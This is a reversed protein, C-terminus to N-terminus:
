KPIYILKENYTIKLGYSTIQYPKVNELFTLGLMIELTDNESKNEILLRIPIKEEGFKIITEVAEEIEHLEGNFNTYQHPEDLKYKQLHKCLRPSIYNGNVGTDILINIQSYSKGNFYEGQIKYNRADNEKEDITNYFRSSNGMRNLPFGVVNKSCFSLRPKICDSILLPKDQLDLNLPRADIEEIRPLSPMQVQCVDNFLLPFDITNKINFCDSHHTNSIAYSIAYTISYPRNQEKFFDKRKFDQLLSLTKDFDKDQIHYSIRPHINFKLKGYQLNGRLIGLCAEERNKIRNDMIALEIPTDIGEKFTSKIIIQIAGIHVWGLTNKIEPKMKQLKNQIDRKSLLPIMVKNSTISIDLAREQINLGYYLHHNRPKIGLKQLTNIKFGSHNSLSFNEHQIQKLKKKDILVEQKYEGLQEEQSDIINSELKSTTIIDFRNM